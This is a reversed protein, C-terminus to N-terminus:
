SFYSPRGTRLNPRTPLILATRLTPRFTGKYSHCGVCRREPLAMLSVESAQWLLLFRPHPGCTFIVYRGNWCDKEFERDHM